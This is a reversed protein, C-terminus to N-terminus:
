LWFDSEFTMPACLNLLPFRLSQTKRHIKQEKNRHMPECSNQRPIAPVIPRVLFAPLPVGSAAPPACGCALVSRALIHACRGKSATRAQNPKALCRRFQHAGSLFPSLGADIRACRTVSRSAAGTWATRGSWAARRWCRPAPKREVRCAVGNRRGSLFSAGPFARPTCRKM